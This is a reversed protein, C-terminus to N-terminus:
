ICMFKKTKKSWNEEFIARFKQKASSFTTDFGLNQNDILLPGDFFDVLLRGRLITAGGRSFIQDVGEQEGGPTGLERSITGGRTAGLCNKQWHGRSIQVDVLRFDVTWFIIDGSFFRRKM